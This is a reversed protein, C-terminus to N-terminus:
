SRQEISWTKSRQCLVSHFGCFHAVLSFLPLVFFSRSIWISLLVFLNYNWTHLMNTSFFFADRPWGILWGLRCLGNAATWGFFYFASRGASGHPATSSSPSLRWEFVSDHSSFTSGYRWLTWLQMVAAAGGSALRVVLWVWVWVCELPLWIPCGSDLILRPEHNLLRERHAVSSTFGSAM